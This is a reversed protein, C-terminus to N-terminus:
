ITNPIKGLNRRVGSLAFRLNLDDLPQIRRTVNEPALPDPNVLRSEPTAPPLNTTLDLQVPAQKRLYLYLGIGILGLIVLTNNKMNKNNKLVKV